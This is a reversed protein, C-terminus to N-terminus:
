NIEAAGKRPAQEGNGVLHDFLLATQQLAHAREHGLGSAWAAAAFKRNDLYQPHKLRM